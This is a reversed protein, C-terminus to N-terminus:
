EKEFLDGEQENANTTAMPKMALFKETMYDKIFVVDKRDGESLPELTKKFDEDEWMIQLSDMNSVSKLMSILKKKVSLTEETESEVSQEDKEVIPEVIQEKNSPSPKM